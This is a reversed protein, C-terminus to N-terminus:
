SQSLFEQDLRTLERKGLCHYALLRVDCVIGFVGYSSPSRARVEASSELKVVRAEIGRAAFANVAHEVADPVYPCQDAHIITL